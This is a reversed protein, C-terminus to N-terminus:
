SIHCENHQNFAANIYERTSVTRNSRFVCCTYVHVCAYYVRFNELWIVGSRYCRKSKRNSLNCVEDAAARPLHVRERQTREHRRYESAPEYNHKSNIRLARLRFFAPFDSIFM